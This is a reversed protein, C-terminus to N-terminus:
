LDRLSDLLIFTADDEWAKKRVQQKVCSPKRPTGRSSPTPTVPPQACGLAPHLFSNYSPSLSLPLQSSTLFIPLFVILMLGLFIVVEALSLTSLNFTLLQLPCHVCCSALTIAVLTSEQQPQMLLFTAGLIPSLTDLGQLIPSRAM